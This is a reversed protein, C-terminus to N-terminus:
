VAGELYKSLLKELLPVLIPALVYYFAVNGAAHMLDFPLGAVYYELLYDFGFVPAQVVSIFFGYLLGTFGAYLSMLWLPIRKFLPRICLGTILAVMTLAFIQPFTWLGMGLVINSVLITLVANLVGFRTGMVLATIIVIDTMPQVNPIAAFAVRGAVSLAALMALLSISKINAIPLRKM